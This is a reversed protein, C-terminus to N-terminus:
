VRLTWRRKTVRIPCGLMTSQGSLTNFLVLHVAYCWLRRGPLNQHVGSFGQLIKGASLPQTIVLQINKVMLMGPHRWFEKRSHVFSTIVGFLQGILVPIREFVSSLM